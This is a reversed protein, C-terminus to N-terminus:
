TQVEHFFDFEGEKLGMPLAPVGPISGIKNGKAWSIPGPLVRLIGARGAAQHYSTPAYVTDKTAKEEWDDAFPM